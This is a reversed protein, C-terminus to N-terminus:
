LLEFQWITCEVAARSVGTCVNKITANVDGRVFIKKDRVLRKDSSCEGKKKCYIVLSKDLGNKDIGRKVDVPFTVEKKNDASIGVKADETITGIFELAIMNLDLSINNNRIDNRCRVTCHIGYGLSYRQREYAQGGFNLYKWVLIFSEKLQRAFVV